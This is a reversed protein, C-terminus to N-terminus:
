KHVFPISIHPARHQMVETQVVFWTAVLVLAIAAVVDLTPNTLIKWLAKQWANGTLKLHM